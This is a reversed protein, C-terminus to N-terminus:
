FVHKINKLAYINTYKSHAFSIYNNYFIISSLLLGSSDLAAGWMFFSPVLISFFVRLGSSIFNIFTISKSADENEEEDDEDNEEDSDVDDKTLLPLLASEAFDLDM